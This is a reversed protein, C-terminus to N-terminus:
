SIVRKKKMIVTTEFRNHPLRRIEFDTYFTGLCKTAERLHTRRNRTVFKVTMIAIGNEVLLDNLRCMIGASESPSLNMDNTVVNFKGLKKNTLEEAKCKLYMVNGISAVSPDLGAPDVSVIEKALSSLVKTWGGPAAGLDLVRYEPKIIIDFYRLAEKIKLEARNLPRQGKPYIRSKKIEKRKINEAQCINIFAKNQFIEVIVIKSPNAFDVIAGVISELSSGLEKKLKSSHFDHNGRRKCKVLFTDSSTLKGLSLVNNTIIKISSKDKSIAIEKEVPTIGGIYETKANVIASIAENENTETSVLINGKMFLPTVTGDKLIARIERAARSELGSPTTILIKTMRADWRELHVKQISSTYM